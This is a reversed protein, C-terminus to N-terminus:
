SPCNQKQHYSKQLRKSDTAKHTHRPFIITLIFHSFSLTHLSLAPFPFLTSLTHITRSHPHSHFTFIITPCPNSLAFRSCPCSHHTFIIPLFSPLTSFYPNSHPTFIIPFIPTLSCFTNIFHPYKIVFYIPQKYCKQTIKRRFEPKKAWGFITEFDQLIM